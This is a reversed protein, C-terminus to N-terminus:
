FPEYVRTEDIRDDKKWDKGSQCVKTGTINIFTIPKFSLSSRYKTHLLFYLSIIRVMSRVMQYKLAAVAAKWRGHRRCTLEPAM